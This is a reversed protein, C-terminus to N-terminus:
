QSAWSPRHVGLATLSPRFVRCVSSFVTNFRAASRGSRSVPTLGAVPAAWGYPETPTSMLQATSPKVAVAGVAARTGLAGLECNGGLYAFRGDALRRRAPNGVVM